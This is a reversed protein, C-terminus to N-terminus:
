YVLDVRIGHDFLNPDANRTIWRMRVFPEVSWTRSRRDGRQITARLSLDTGHNSFPVSGVAEGGPLGSWAQGAEIFAGLGKGVEYDLRLASRLYMARYRSLDGAGELIVLPRRSPLWKPLRAKVGASLEATMARSPASPLGIVDVGGWLAAGDDNLERIAFGAVHLRDSLDTRDSLATRGEGLLVYSTTGAGPGGWSKAAGLRLETNGHHLDRWTARAGLGGWRLTTFVDTALTAWSQAHAPEAAMAAALTAGVVSRRIM